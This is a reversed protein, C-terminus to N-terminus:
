LGHMFPIDAEDGVVVRSGDRRHGPFLVVNVGGPHRASPVVLGEAMREFAARGVAQTLAERDADQEAKWDCTTLDATNLGLAGLAPGSTLDLLAQFELRATFRTQPKLASVAFGYRQAWAEAEANATAVATSFCVAPFLKMVNWRSGSLLAGVGTLRYPQSVWRPLATRLVDGSWPRLLAPDALAAFYQPFDPHPAPM